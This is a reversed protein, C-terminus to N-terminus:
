NHSSSLGVTGNKKLLLYLEIARLSDLPCLYHRLTDEWGTEVRGEERCKKMHEAMQELICNRESSRSQDALHRLYPFTCTLEDDFQTQMQLPIFSSYYSHSGSALGGDRVEVDESLNLTKRLAKEAQRQRDSRHRNQHKERHKSM